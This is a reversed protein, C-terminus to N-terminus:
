RAETLVPDQVSDIIVDPPVAARTAINSSARPSLMATVSMNGTVNLVTKFLDPVADVAEVLVIGEIPIGAAMYAPLTRFAGGGGPVGVASFSLVIVVTLFTVFTWADLTVGYVTALFILKATSSVPRNIKFVSACLPLLFATAVAPLRLTERAGAILAPLSALSSRTSIAVLQAPACARAFTRLPIRAVLATLPYLLLTVLILLLSTVLAFAGLMGAAISGIGLAALYAFAFVGPPTFLLVWRVIVLLASSTGRVVTAITRRETSPIHNLAAGFLAALILLSLIEGNAAARVINTPLLQSVWEGLSGIAVPQTAAARAADPITLSAHLATAAARDVPFLSVIVPAVAITIVGVAILLVVFTIVARLGLRGVPSREDTGVVAAVMQVVVMPLVTAQLATLWLSGIPELVAGLTVFAAHGSRHGLWGLALGAALAGLSWGTTGISRSTSSTVPASYPQPPRPALSSVRRYRALNQARAPASWGM